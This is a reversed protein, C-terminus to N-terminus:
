CVPSNWSTKLQYLEERNDQLNTLSIADDEAKALTGNAADRLFDDISSYDWQALIRDIRETIQKLKSDVLDDLIAKDVSITTM